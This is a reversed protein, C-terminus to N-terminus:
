GTLSKKLQCFLIKQNITASLGNIGDKSLCIIAIFELLM